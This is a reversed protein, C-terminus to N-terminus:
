REWPPPKERRWPIHGSDAMTSATRLVDGMTPGHVFAVLKRRKRTGKLMLLWGDSVPTIRIESLTVADQSEVNAPLQTLGYAVRRELEM